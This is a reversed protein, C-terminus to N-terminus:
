ILNIKRSKSLNHGFRIYLQNNGINWLSGFSQIHIRRMKRSRVSERNKNQFVIIKTEHIEKNRTITFKYTENPM